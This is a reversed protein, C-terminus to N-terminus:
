DREHSYVQHENNNTQFKKSLIEEAKNIDGLERKAKNSTAHTDPMLQRITLTSSIKPDFLSM